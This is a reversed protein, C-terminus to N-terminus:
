DRWNEIIETNSAAYTEVVIEDDREYVIEVLDESTIRMYIERSNDAEKLSTDWEQTTHQAHRYDGNGMVIRSPDSSDPCPGIDYDNGCGVSYAVLLAIATSLILSPSLNNM